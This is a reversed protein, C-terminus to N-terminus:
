KESHTQKWERPESAKKQLTDQAKLNIWRATLALRLRQIFGAVDGKLTREKLSGACILVYDIIM